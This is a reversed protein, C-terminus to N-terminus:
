ETFPTASMPPGGRRMAGPMVMLMNQGLAAVDSRVKATAGNGITVMAIVSGVGIIVGLMTLFSRLANRRIERLAMLLTQLIM